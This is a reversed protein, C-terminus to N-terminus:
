QQRNSKRKRFELYYGFIMGYTLGGVLRSLVYRIWRGDAVREEVFASFAIGNFHMFHEIISFIIVFGLGIFGVTAWYKKSSIISFFM